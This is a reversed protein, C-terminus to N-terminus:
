PCLDPGRQQCPLQSRCRAPPESVEDSEDEEEKKAEAAPAAAGAAAGAAPASAGGGGGSPVSALKKKGEAIVENVDKGALEALLKSVNAAEAEVGVAAPRALSPRRKHGQDLCSAAPQTRLAGSPGGGPRAAWAAAAIHRHAPAGNSSDAIRARETRGAWRTHPRQAAPSQQAPGSGRGWCRAGPAARQRHQISDRNRAGRGRAPARGPRPEPERAPCRPCCARARVPAWFRTSTMPPPTPRAGWSLRRASPRADPRARAAPPRCRRPGPRVRVLLYASVVRM